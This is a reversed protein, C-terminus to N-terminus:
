FERRRQSGHHRDKRTRGREGKLKRITGEEDRKQIRKRIKVKRM